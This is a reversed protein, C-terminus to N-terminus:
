PGFGLVNINRPILVHIEKMYGLVGLLTFFHLPDQVRSKVIHTRLARNPEASNEVM